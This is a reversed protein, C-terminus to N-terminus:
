SWDFRYVAMGQENDEPRYDMSVDVGPFMDKLFGLVKEAMMRHTFIKEQFDFRDPSYKACEWVRTSLREAIEYSGREYAKQLVDRTYTQM